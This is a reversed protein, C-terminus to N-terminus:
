IQKAFIRIMEFVPSVQGLIETPSIIFDWGPMQLTYVYPVKLIAKMYDASNGASADLVFSNFSNIKLNM